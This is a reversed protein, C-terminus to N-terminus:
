RKKKKRAEAYGIALAQKKSTVKPGTKSGSHLKGSKFEKMVKAVKTKTKKSPM